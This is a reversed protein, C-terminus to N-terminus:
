ICCVGTHHVSLGLHAERTAMSALDSDLDGQDGQNCWVSSVQTLSQSAWTMQGVEVQLWQHLTVTLTM